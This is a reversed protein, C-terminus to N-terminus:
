VRPEFVVHAVRLDLLVDLIHTARRVPRREALGSCDGLCLTLTEFSYYRAEWASARRARAM